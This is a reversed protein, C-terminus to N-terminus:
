WIGFLNEFDSYKFFFSDLNNYAPDGVLIPNSFSTQATYKIATEILKKLPEITEDAVYSNGSNDAGNQYYPNDKVTQPGTYAIDAKEEVCDKTLSNAQAILNTYEVGSDNVAYIDAETKLKGAIRYYEALLDNLEAQEDATLIVPNGDLCQEVPPTDKTPTKVIPTPTPTTDVAINGGCPITKGNNDRCGTNPTTIPNFPPLVINSNPTPVQTDPNTPTNDTTTPTNNDTSTSPTTKIPTAPKPKSSGLLPAFMRNAITGETTGSGKYFLFYGAVLLIIVSIFTILFAKSKRNDM